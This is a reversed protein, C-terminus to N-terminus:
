FHVQDFWGAVCCIRVGHSLVLMAASVYEKSCTSEPDNFDFLERAPSAEFYKVVMSEKIAPFPGHHIGAMALIGIRQSKRHNPSALIDDKILQALVMTSVPVGQSHTVFLVLDAQQLKPVLPELYKLHSEVRDMIKGQCVLEITEIVADESVTYNELLVQKMMAAFKASTGTPQGM